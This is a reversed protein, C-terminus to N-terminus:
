LAKKLQVDIQLFANKARNSLEVLRNYVSIIYLALAVLVVVIIITAIM